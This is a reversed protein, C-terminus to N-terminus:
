APRPASIIRSALPTLRHGAADILRGFGIAMAAAQVGCLLTLGFSTGAYTVDDPLLELPLRVISFAPSTLWMAPAYLLFLAFPEIAAAAINVVAVAAAGARLRRATVPHRRREAFVVMVLTWVIVGAIEGIRDGRDFGTNSWTLVIFPLACAWVLASWIVCQRIFRIM